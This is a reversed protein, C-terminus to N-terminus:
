KSVPRSSIMRDNTPDGFYKNKTTRFPDITKPPKAYEPGAISMGKFVQGAPNTNPAKGLNAPKVVKNFHAVQAGTKSGPRRKKYPRTQDFAENTELWEKFDV